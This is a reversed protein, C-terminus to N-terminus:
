IVWEVEGWSFVEEKKGFTILHGDHNVAQIVTEILTDNHKLTVKKGRNYLVSNYEELLDHRGPNKMLEWRTQLCRCLEKGLEVIDYTNGTIQKLSVPNPLKKNFVTQNINIGIGAVAYRWINGKVANEILIGGAKRDRWYIDNPWKISTDSKTYHNVFDYCGLAITLSLTFQNALSVLEPQLICSLAINVATGSNWSKGRQGKGATQELSFIADGHRAMGAHVRAMAYNNTSDVSKLLTFTNGISDM